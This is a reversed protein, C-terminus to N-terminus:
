IARSVGRKAECDARAMRRYADLSKKPVPVIFGDVYAM